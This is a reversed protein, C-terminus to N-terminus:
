SGVGRYFPLGVLCRLDHPLAPFPEFDSILKEGPAELWVHWRGDSFGLRCPPEERLFFSVV